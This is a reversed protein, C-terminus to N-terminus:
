WPQVNVPENQRRVIENGRIEFNRNLWELMEEPSKRPRYGWIDKYMDSYFGGNEHVDELTFHNERNKM